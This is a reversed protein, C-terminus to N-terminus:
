TRSRLNVELDLLRKFAKLELPVGLLKKVRLKIAEKRFNSESKSDGVKVQPFYKFVSKFPKANYSYDLQYHDLLYSQEELLLEKFDDKNIKLNLLDPNVEIINM